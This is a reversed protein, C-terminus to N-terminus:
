MKGMIFRKVKQKNRWKKINLVKNLLKTRKIIHQRNKEYNDNILWEVMKMDLNQKEM